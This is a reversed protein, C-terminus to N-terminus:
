QSPITQVERRSIARVLKDRATKYQEFSEHVAGRVGGHALGSELSSDYLGPEVGRYVCYFRRERGPSSMLSPTPAVTSAINIPHFRPSQPARGDASGVLGQARAANWAVVASARDPFGQYIAGSIGSYHEAAETSPYVGPPRGVIVVVHAKTRDRHPKHKHRTTSAVVHQGRHQSTAASAWDHTTGSGSVVYVTDDGDPPPVLPEVPHAVDTQTGINRTPRLRRYLEDYRVDALLIDVSDVSGAPSHFTPDSDVSAAPSHFTPGSNVSAAPSHFTTGSDSGCDSCYSESTESM